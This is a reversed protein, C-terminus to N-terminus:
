QWNDDEDHHADWEDTAEVLADLEAQELTGEMPIGLEAIREVAREYDDPCRVIVKRHAIPSQDSRQIVVPKTISWLLASTWSSM